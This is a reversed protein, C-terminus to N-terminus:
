SPRFRRKAMRDFVFSQSPAPRANHQVEQSAAAFCSLGEHLTRFGEQTLTLTTGNAM